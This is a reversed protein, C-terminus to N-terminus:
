KRWIALNLLGLIALTEVRGVVMAVCLLLQAKQGMALLSPFDESTKGFSAFEYAPGFNSFSSVSVMLAANMPIGLYSLILMLAVLFFITISFISWISLRVFQDRSKSGYQTPHIGHPYLLDQLERRSLDLMTLFRSIKLGGATSYRGGGILAVILIVLYPLYVQDTHGFAFGTTSILSSATALGIIIDHFFLPIDMYNARAFISIILFFGLGLIAGGVYVPESTRTLALRNRDFLAKVWIVSVAGLFMFIALTLEAGRSGYLAIAGERPMYGGTSLTSLALCLADFSPIGFAWLLLYCLVTLGFYLPLITLVTNELDMSSGSNSQIIARTDRGFLEIGMIRGIIFSLMLLTTLGGLWQLLSRWLIISGPLDSINKSLLAGTTTFASVSEFYAASFSSASGTFYFPLGAGVPLLFWIAPIILLQQKRVISMNERHLAFILGGAIFFLAVSSNMFAMAQSREGTALAYFAPVMMSMSLGGLCWGLIYITALM